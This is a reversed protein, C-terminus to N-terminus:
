EASKEQEEAEEEGEAAEEEAEEGEVVEEVAAKIVTPPHVAVIVSKPNNLITINEIVVEEVHISDGIMMGSVDVEIKDPLHKPLCEIRLNRRVSELIGGEKVGISEGILEVPVASTMKEGRTIGLLDVHQIKDTAPDRQIERFIVEYEGVGEIILSVLGRKISLARELDKINVKIPTTDYHPGYFNAPVLDNRRLRRMANKGKESRKIATLKFENM